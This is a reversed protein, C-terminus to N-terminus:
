PSSLDLGGSPWTASKRSLGGGGRGAGAGGGGEEKGPSEDMEELLTAFAGLGGSGLSFPRGVPSGGLVGSICGGAPAAGGPPSPAAPM